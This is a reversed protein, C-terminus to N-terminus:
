RSSSTGLEPQRKRNAASTAGVTRRSAPRWDPDVGFAALVSRRIEDRRRAVRSPLTTRLEQLLQRGSRSDAVSLRRPKPSVTSGLANTRRHDLSASRHARAWGALMLASRGARLLLVTARWVAALLLRWHGAGRALLRVARRWGFLRILRVVLWLLLLRMGRRWRVWRSLRAILWLLVRRAWRHRALRWAFRLSVMGWRVWGSLRQAATAAAGAEAALCPSFSAIITLQAGHPSSRGNGNAEHARLDAPSSGASSRAGPTSSPGECARSPRQVHEFDVIARRDPSKRGLHV